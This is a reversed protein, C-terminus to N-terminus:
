GTEILFLSYNHGIIAMIGASIQLWYILPADFSVFEQVLWVACTGKLADFLM